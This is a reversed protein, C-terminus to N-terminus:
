LRFDCSLYQFEREVHVRYLCAGRRAALWDISRFAKVKDMPESLASLFIVKGIGIVLLGCAFISLGSLNSLATAVIELGPYLPSIPLLSNAGFLHQEEMINLATNWHLFEDYESFHLPSHLIKVGYLGMGMILILVLSERPPTYPWAIRLAAPFAIAATGGWYLALSYAGNHM